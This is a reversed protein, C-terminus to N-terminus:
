APEDVIKNIDIGNTLGAHTDNVAYREHQSPPLMRGAAEYWHREGM